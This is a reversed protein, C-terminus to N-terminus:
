DWWTREKYLRIKHYLAQAKAIYLDELYYEVTCDQKHEEFKENQFKSLFRASNKTNVYRTFRYEGSNTRELFSVKENQIIEILRVCCEMESVMQEWGEVLQSKKHYAIMRQLSYKEIDLLYFWDWPEFTVARKILARHEKTSHRKISRFFRIIPSKM